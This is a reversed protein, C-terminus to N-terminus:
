FSLELSISDIRGDPSLSRKVLMQAKPSASTNESQPASETQMAAREEDEYTEPKQKGLTKAQYDRVAMIHKCTWSPDESHTEFDPCSCRFGVGSGSVLYHQSPNHASRVRWGDDTTSIVFLEQAA